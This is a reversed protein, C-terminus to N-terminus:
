WPEDSGSFIIKEVGLQKECDSNAFYKKLTKNLKTMFNTGPTIATKNWSQKEGYIKNKIKQELISKFRRTRQQELKAVPAVGDFTIFIKKNPNLVNIYDKIKECVKEILIKEFDEDDKFNEYDKSLSFLSDYIISNSDFYLNNIQKKFNILKKLIDKNNRVINGFYSPIGM